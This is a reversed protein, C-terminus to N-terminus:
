REPFSYRYSGLDLPAFTRKQCAPHGVRGVSIPVFRVNVTPDDFPLYPGPNSRTVIM